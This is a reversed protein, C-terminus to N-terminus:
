IRHSKTAQGRTEIPQLHLTDLNPDSNESTAFRSDVEKWNYTYLKIIPEM